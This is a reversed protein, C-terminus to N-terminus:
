RSGTLTADSVSTITVRSCHLAASNFVLNCDPEGRHNWSRHPLIVAELKFATQGVSGAMGASLRIM